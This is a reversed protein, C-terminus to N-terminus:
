KKAAKTFRGSFNAKMQEYEDKSIINLDYGNLDFQGYKTLYGLSNGYGTELFIEDNEVEFLFCIIIIKLHDTLCLTNAIACSYCIEYGNDSIIYLILTVFLNKNMSLLKDFFIDYYKLKEITSFGVSYKGQDSCNEIVSFWSDRIKIHYEVNENKINNVLDQNMKTGYLKELDEVIIKKKNVEDIYKVMLLLDKIIRTREYFKHLQEESLGLEYKTILQWIIELKQETPSDEPLGLLKTILGPEM